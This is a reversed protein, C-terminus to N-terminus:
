NFTLTPIFQSLIKKLKTYSECLNPMLTNPHWMQLFETLKIAGNLTLNNNGDKETRIQEELNAKFAWITLRM